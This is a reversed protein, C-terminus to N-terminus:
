NSRSNTLTQRWGAPLDLEMLWVREAGVNQNWNTAFVVRSGDSSITAHTEEWYEARTGYVRALYYARPRARDLTVLIIKRDLWNQEPVGPAIYTSVVCYGPTNCSIHIGSGLGSSSSSYFLRVLPTRNTGQYSGGSDLIPRTAPDLPILDIYDTRVDQMVIVENGQSDLAIDAHATAWDIRHFDTLERNAITLGTLPGANNESGGILVWNGKWSMGVWDIESQSATIARLGLVRNAERDWTLLYRARYDQASGQILFAWYRKDSSSEGEDKMTIRYLDPNQGLTPTVASDQAFDKVVATEGTEVELTEIRFDRSGWLMKPRSPDWRPEELDIGRVLNAQADYPV